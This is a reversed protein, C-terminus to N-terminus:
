YRFLKGMGQISVKYIHKFFPNESVSVDWFIWHVCLLQYSDCKGVGQGLAGSGLPCSILSPIEPISSIKSSISVVTLSM